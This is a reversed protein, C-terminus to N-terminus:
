SKFSIGSGHGNKSLDLFKYSKISYITALGNLTEISTYGYSKGRSSVSNLNYNYLADAYYYNISNLFSIIQFNNLSFCTSSSLM